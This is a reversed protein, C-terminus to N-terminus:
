KKVPCTHQMNKAAQLQSALKANDKKADILMQNLHDIQRQKGLWEEETYGCGFLAFLSLLSISKGIKNVM